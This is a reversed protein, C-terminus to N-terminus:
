ARGAPGITLARAFFRSFGNEVYPSFPGCEVFGASRYLSIAPEFAPARGTELRLMYLGQATAAALIHTLLAQAVGRRLHDPHTRMAKLEGTGDDRRLLAACGGLDPGEWATYLQLGPARLGALDLAFVADAPSNDFMSARHYVLLDIVQPDTIPDAVIRWTKNM